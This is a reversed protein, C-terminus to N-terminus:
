INIYVEKGRSDFIRRNYQLQRKIYGHHKGLYQDGKEYTAFSHIGSDDSICCTPNDLYEYKICNLEDFFYLSVLDGSASSIYSRNLIQQSIYSDSWGLFLSADQQSDFVYEHSNWVIKCQKGNGNMINDHLEMWELNLLRNDFTIHNKHQITPRRMSAPPRGLFIYGMMRHIPHNLPQNNDMDYIGVYLYMGKDCHAKLIKNKPGKVRGLDSIFYGPKFIRGQYESLPAWHEEYLTDPNFWEDDSIWDGHYKVLM